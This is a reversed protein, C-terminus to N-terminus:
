IHILSLEVNMRHKEIHGKAHEEIAEIMNKRNYEAM